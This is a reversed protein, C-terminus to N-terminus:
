PTSGGDRRAPDWPAIAKRVAAAVDADGEFTWEVKQATVTQDNSAHFLLVAKVAPMRSPLDSLAERYWAARDGGVRLSGLEAIMVPRGFRALREYKTGFIEQFSWWRSWQAIPGYNLVSTATWDVVDDGPYYLDWWEYAV